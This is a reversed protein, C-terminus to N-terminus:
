SELGDAWMRVALQAQFAAIALKKEHESPAVEVLTATGDEALYLGGWRTIYPMPELSVAMGDKDYVVMGDMQAYGACQMLLPALYFKGSKADLLWPEGEIEAVLDFRGGVGPSVVDRESQIFSPRAAKCFKAVADMYPGDSDLVDATEGNAWSAIHGHIRSGRQGAKNWQKRYSPGIRVAAAVMRDLKGPESYSGVIGTVSYPPKLGTRPDTYSHSNSARQRDSVPSM